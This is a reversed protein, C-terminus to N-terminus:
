GHGADDRGPARLGDGDLRRRDGAPLTAPDVMLCAIAAAATEFLDDLSRGDIEVACDALVVDELFEYRGM